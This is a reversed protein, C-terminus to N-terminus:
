DRQIQLEGRLPYADDVAKVQVLQPKGQAFIVSPFTVQRSYKLGQASAQTMWDSPIPQGQQVVLDAALAAAGERYLAQEVRDTFFAVSSFATVAIVLAWFLLGLGPQAIKM